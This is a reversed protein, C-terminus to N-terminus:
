LDFHNFTIENSKKRLNEGKLHLNVPRTHIELFVYKTTKSPKNPGIGRRGHDSSQDIPYEHQKEEDARACNIAEVGLIIQLSSLHLTYKFILYSNPYLLPLM